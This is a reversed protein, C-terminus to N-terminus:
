DTPSKEMIDKNGIMFTKFLSIYIKLHKHISEAGVSEESLVDDCEILQEVAMLWYPQVVREPLKEIIEMVQQINERTITTVDTSAGLVILLVEMFCENAQSIAKTWNQAKEKKYMKWVGAPILVYEPQTETQEEEDGTPIVIERYKQAVIPQINRRPDNLFQHALLQENQQKLRNGYESLRQGFQEPQTTGRQVLAIVPSAFLM